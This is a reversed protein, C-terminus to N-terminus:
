IRIQACFFFSYLQKVDRHIWLIFFHQSDFTNFSNLNSSMLDRANM